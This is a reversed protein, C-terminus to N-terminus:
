CYDSESLTSHRFKLRWADARCLGGTRLSPRQYTGTFCRISGDCYVFRLDVLGWAKDNRAKFLEFARRFLDPELGVLTTTEDSLINEIADIAKERYNGALSNGIEVLVCDTTLWEERGYIDLLEIAKSHLADNPSIWAILLATDVFIM